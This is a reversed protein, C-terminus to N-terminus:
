RLQFPVEALDRALANKLRASARDADRGRALFPVCGVLQEETPAIDAKGGFASM